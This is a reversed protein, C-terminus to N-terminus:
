SELYSIYGEDKYNDGCWLYPQYDLVGNNNTVTVYGDCLINNDKIDHIQDMLGATYLLDFTVNNIVEPYDEKYESKIYVKTEKVLRDKIDTYTEYEDISLSEENNDKIYINYIVVLVVLVLLIGLCIILNVTTFGKNNM